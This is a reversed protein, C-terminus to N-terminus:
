ARRAVLPQPPLSATAFSTHTPSNSASHRVGGTGVAAAPIQMAGDGLLAFLPRDPHAFKAAIGYPLGGMSLLTGSLSALMGPRVQLHRAYWATVTGCDVSIMADPPLRDDLETLVLQPNVPDAPQRAVRRQGDRWSATRTAIDARWSTPPTHDGLLELLARLTLAADGTLNVQTPYRLGLRAGDIDIQVAPRGEPPYFEGYPMASGVILLRDCERMLDWSPKTGLMGIAGPAWPERQDVVPLALLSTAVGAGLKEAIAVIEAEAGYAGQGVLLAVREGGRLVQAARRLDDPAAITPRSSPANSTAYHAHRHPPDLVAKEDQIDNPLVLM